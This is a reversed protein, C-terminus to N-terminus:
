DFDVHVAKITKLIKQPPPPYFIKKLEYVKAIKFSKQKPWSKEFPPHFDRRVVDSIEWIDWL